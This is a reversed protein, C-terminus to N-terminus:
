SQGEEYECMEARFRLPVTGTPGDRQKLLLLEAGKAALTERYLGLVVDSDQEIAGSDRGDALTPRPMTDQRHEPRSMQSLMLVPCQCESALMKLQRTMDAIELNRSERKGSAVMLQLYDVIVADLGYLARGRVAEARIDAVSM